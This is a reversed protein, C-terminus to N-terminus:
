QGTRTAREGTQLKVKGQLNIQESSSGVYIDFDAPEVKWQKSAVDYFSFARRDLTVTAKGTQNPMVHLKVFGKLEKVPRPVTAHRDGVYVQAVESGDRSGVNTVDFSVTVAAGPRIADPQVVSPSVVLNSYKFTTYSLGYGFPFLPKTSSKDFHRYGLFVGEKYAVRRSDGEPYYSSFVANDEWRREFSVPLKGSPSFEGFLLEALARGGEQGPYWAEVLAPVRDIWHTMDVGGGSTLVVITNKNATLVENVLEDQGVPLQFSRDAGEREIVPDFGACVVAVDAQAALSKAAPEVLNAFSIVGLGLSADRSKGVYELTIKYPQGARLNEHDDAVTDGANQRDRQLALRDDVYLKYAGQTNVYFHYDGSTQPTYYGTWRASINKTPAVSRVLTEHLNLHRDVRTL